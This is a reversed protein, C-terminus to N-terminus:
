ATSCSVASSRVNFSTMAVSYIDGEKSPYNLYQLDILDISSIMTTFGEPATFRLTELKCVRPYSRFGAAFGFDALCAQGDQAILINNQVHWADAHLNVRRKM